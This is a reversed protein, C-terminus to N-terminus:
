IGFHQQTVPAAGEPFGVCSDLPFHHKGLILESLCHPGALIEQAPLESLTSSKSDFVQAGIQSVKPLANELGGM